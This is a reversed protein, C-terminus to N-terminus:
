GFLEIHEKFLRKVDVEIMELKTLKRDVWLYLPAFYSFESQLNVIDSLSIYRILPNLTLTVLDEDFYELAEDDDLKEEDLFHGNYQHYADLLLKNPQVMPFLRRDDIEFADKIDYTFFISKIKFKKESNKNISAAEDWSEFGTMACALELAEHHPINDHKKLKRALQKLKEFDTRTLITHHKM